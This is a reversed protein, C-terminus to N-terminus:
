SKSKTRPTRQMRACPTADMIRAIAISGGALPHPIPQRAGSHLDCGRNMDIAQRIATVLLGTRSTELALGGGELFQAVPLHVGQARHEAGTVRALEHGLEVAERGRAQLGVRKGM